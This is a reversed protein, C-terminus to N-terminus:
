LFFIFKHSQIDRWRTGGDTSNLPHLRRTARIPPSFPVGRFPSETERPHPICPLGGCTTAAIFHVTNNETADISYGQSEGAHPMLNSGSKIWVTVIQAASAKINYAVSSLALGFVKAVFRNM